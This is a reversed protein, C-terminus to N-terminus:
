CHSRTGGINHLFHISQLVFSSCTKSKEEQVRNESSHKAHWFVVFNEDFHYWFMFVCLSFWDHIRLDFTMRDLWVSGCCKHSLWYDCPLLSGGLLEKKLNKDITQKRFYYDQPFEWDFYFLKLTSFPGKEKGM